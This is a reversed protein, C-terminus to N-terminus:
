EGGGLHEYIENLKRIFKSMEVDFCKMLAEDRKVTLIVSPLGEAYSMFDWEAFGCIWMNGHVQRHKDAPLKRDRMTQMHNADNPCKIELGKNVHLENKGLPEVILGDPSCLVNKSANKWVFAVEQVEVGTIQGYLWRAAPEKEIGKKMDYSAYGEEYRGKFKEALLKNMYPNASKSPEGSEKLIEKAHSMSPIGAKAIFWEDAQQEFSDEIIM